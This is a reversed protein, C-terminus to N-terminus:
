RKNLSSNIDDILTRLNDFSHAPYLSRHIMGSDFIIGNGKDVCISSVDKLDSFPAYYSKPTFHEFENRINEHLWELSQLERDCVIVPRGVFTGMHSTTQIMALLDYFGILYNDFSPTYSTDNGQEVPPDCQKPESYRWAKQCGDVEIRHIEMWPGGGLRYKVSRAKDKPRGTVMRSSSQSLAEVMARLLFQHAEKAVRFYIADAQKLEYKLHILNNTLLRFNNVGEYDNPSM